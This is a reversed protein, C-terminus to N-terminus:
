IYFWIYSTGTGSQYHASAANRILSFIASFFVIESSLSRWPHVILKPTGTSGSTAFCIDTAGLERSKLVVEAWESLTNVRLLYDEIGSQHMQFFTAVRTAIAMWELSDVIIEQEAGKSRHELTIITTAQWNFGKLLDVSSDSLQGRRMLVLEDAILAGIVPILAAAPLSVTTTAASM